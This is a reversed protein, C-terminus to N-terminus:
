HRTGQIEKEHTPIPSTGVVSTDVTRTATFNAVIPVAIGRVAETGESHWVSIVSINEM